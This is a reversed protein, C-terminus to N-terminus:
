DNTEEPLLEIMLSNESQLPELVYKMVGATTTDATNLNLGGLKVFKHSAGKYM